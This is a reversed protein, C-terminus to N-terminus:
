KWWVQHVWRGYTGQLSTELGLVRASGLNEPRMRPPLMQYQILDKIQAGFVTFDWLICLHESTERLRLGFDANIGTEPRLDSNGLIRGSNGYREFLSPLRGYRGLNSRLSLKEGLDKQLALRLIPLWHQTPLTSSFLNPEYRERHAVTDSIAEIRITPIIHFYENGVTFDWEGGIAGSTRTGEPGSPQDSSSPFFKEHQSALLLSLRLWSWVIKQGTLSGGLTYTQDNTETPVAAVEADPDSFRQRTGLGFVQARLASALGLDKSSEYFSTAMWQRTHLHAKTSTLYGLSPIGQHRDFVNAVATVRRGPSPEFSGRLRGDKQSLANNQRNAHRDDSALFFTGGDNEYPFNGQSSLAHGQLSLTTKTTVHAVLADGFYTQFSGSGLHVLGQSRIPHQSHISLVGGLGSSPFVIPSQGRFIEARDLPGLALLGVDTGGVSATSYPVGDVFVPVQNPASGRLSLTATSGLGGSRTITVGPQEALLQPLTEFGRPTRNPHILSSSVTDDTVISEGPDAVVTTVRDSSVRTPEEALLPTALIVFGITALACPFYSIRKNQRALDVDQLALPAYM